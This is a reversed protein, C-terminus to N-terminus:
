ISTMRKRTANSPELRSELQLLYGRAKLREELIEPITGALFVWRIQWAPVLLSQGKFQLRLVNKLTCFHTVSVSRILEPYSQLSTRKEGCAIEQLGFTSQRPEAPHITLREMISAKAAQHYLPRRAKGEEKGDHFGKAHKAVIALARQSLDYPFSLGRAWLKGALWVRMSM